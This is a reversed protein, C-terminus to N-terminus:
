VAESEDHHANGVKSDRLSLGWVPKSISARFRERGPRVKASSTEIQLDIQQYTGTTSEKDNTVFRKREPHAEITPDFCSSKGSM